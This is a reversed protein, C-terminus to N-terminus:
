LHVRNRHPRSANQRRRLDANTSAGFYREFAALSVASKNADFADVDPKSYARFLVWDILNAHHAEAIEPEDDDGELSTKPLRFFELYLTYDQDPLSSLILQKDDHVYNTPLDTRSRWGPCLWDLDRRSAGSIEYSAGDSARLEAHQIDFLVSPLELPDNNGAVVSFEESDRLLRARVAAESEAESFWYALESDPWLYPKRADQAQVRFQWIMGALNM